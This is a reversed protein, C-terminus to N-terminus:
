PAPVVLKAQPPSWRSTIDFRWITVRARFEYTGTEPPRYRYRPRRKGHAINTWPSDELRVQVEYTRSPRAEAAVRIRIIAGPTPDANPGPRIRLPVRIVGGPHPTPLV